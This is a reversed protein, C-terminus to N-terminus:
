KPAVSVMDASTPSIIPCWPHACLSAHPAPTEGAPAAPVAAGCSEAPLAAGCPKTRALLVTAAMLWGTTGLGLLGIRGAYPLLAYHLMSLAPVVVAVVFAARPRDHRDLWLPVLLTAPAVLMFYHGRAVPSVVLMAVCSLAFGTALDLRTAM